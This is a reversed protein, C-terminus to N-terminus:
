ERGTVLSNGAHYAKELERPFRLIIAKRKEDLGQLIGYFGCASIAEVTSIRFMNLISIIEYMVFDYTDAYPYGWTGIVLARRDQEQKRGELCYWRDFFTALQACERGSYIPFGLIIADSAIIKEFIGPMDDKQVCFGVFGPQKCKACALCPNVKFKRLVIKEVQAGADRAGRVSEDILVDTNGRIRPSACIALVKMEGPRKTPKIALREWRKVQVPKANYANIDKVPDISLKKFKEPDEIMHFLPDYGKTFALRMAEFVLERGAEKGGQENVLLSLMRLIKRRFEERIIPPRMNLFKDLAEQGEKTMVPGTM